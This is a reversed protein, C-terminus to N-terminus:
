VFQFTSPLEKGQRGRLSPLPREHVLVGHPGSHYLSRRSFGLLSAADFDRRDEGGEERSDETTASDTRLNWNSRYRLCVCVCVSVYM